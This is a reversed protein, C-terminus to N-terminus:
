FSPLTLSSEEIPFLSQKNGASPWEWLSAVNEEELDRITFQHGDRGSAVTVTFHALGSRRQFPNSSNEVTQVRYKKLIVTNRGLLRYRLLMTNEKTGIAADKFQAFGLILAPLLLGFAYIGGPIFLWVPIIVLLALLTMRALYRRLSALPPRIAPIQEAYEPLAKRIFGSVKQKPLVPFLMVSKGGENGYGASDLKITVYGLPQHMLEEKVQIAQIRNYPITLQKREFLGHSIILEGEKLRVSFGSYKIITGMFSLLWSIVLVFIVATVIFGSNASTPIISEIYRIMEEESLVQDIQSFVAGVISLAVGFSGSTSAAIVLDKTGLSYTEIRKETEPFEKSTGKRLSEQLQNAVEETVASIKAEKSSGGATKVQVQVLGFFRQVIGSTVDIVQIRDKSIYIKKRILVGQEIILQDDEVRYTFRLWSLIGWVFLVLITGLVWTINFLSQEDGSGGVFLIILITIFNGRIIELVKTIAAVPHQRRINFM